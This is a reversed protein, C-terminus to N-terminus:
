IVTYGSEGVIFFNFINRSLQKEWFLFLFMDHCVEVRHNMFVKLFNFNQIRKWLWLLNGQSQSKAGMSFFLLLFSLTTFCESHTFKISSVSMDLGNWVTKTSCGRLSSMVCSPVGTTSTLSKLFLKSGNKRGGLPMAVILPKNNLLPWFGLHREEM